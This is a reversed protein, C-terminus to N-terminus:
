SGLGGELAFEALQDEVACVTAPRHVPDRPEPARRTMPRMPLRRRM